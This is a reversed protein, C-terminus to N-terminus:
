VHVTDRVDVRTHVGRAARMARLRVVRTKKVRTAVDHMPVVHAHRPEHLHRASTVRADGVSRRTHDGDTLVSKSTRTSWEGHTALCKPRGVQRVRAGGVRTQLRTQQGEHRHSGAVPAHRANRRWGLIGRADGRRRAARARANQHAQAVVHVRADYQVADKTVHEVAGGIRLLHAVHVCVHRM